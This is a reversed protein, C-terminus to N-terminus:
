AGPAPGAAPWIRFALAAEKAIAVSIIQASQGDSALLSEVEDRLEDDGGCEPNLLVARQIAAIM